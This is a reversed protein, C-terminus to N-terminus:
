KPKTPLLLHQAPKHMSLLKLGHIHTHAEVHGHAHARPGRSANRKLQGAVQLASHCVHLPDGIHAVPQVKYTSTSKKMRWRANPSLPVM